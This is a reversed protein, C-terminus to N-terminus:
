CQQKDLTLMETQNLCKSTNMTINLNRKLKLLINEIPLTLM